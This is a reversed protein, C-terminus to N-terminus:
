TRGEPAAATMDPAAATMDPTEACTTSETARRNPYGVAELILGKAPALLKARTIDRSRLIEDFEGPSM